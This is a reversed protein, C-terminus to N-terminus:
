KINQSRAVKRSSSPVESTSLEIYDMRISWLVDACKKMTPWNHQQPALCQLALEFVKVMVFINASSRELRPDLTLIEDGDSFEKYGFDILKARLNKTLLVNSSKIERHIIPDDPYMHLYTVAHAMDIAIDLRAAFDLVNGHVGTMRRFFFKLVFFLLLTVTVTVTDAELGTLVNLQLWLEM